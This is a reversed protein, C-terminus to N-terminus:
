FLDFLLTSYNIFYYYYFHIFRGLFLYNTTMCKKRSVIYLKSLQNMSDMAQHKISEIRSVLPTINYALLEDLLDHYYQVGASSVNYVTGYPFVRSWSISFRYVDFQGFSFNHLQLIRFGYCIKITNKNYNSLCMLNKFFTDFLLIQKGKSQQCM